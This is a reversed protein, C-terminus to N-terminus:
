RSLRDPFCGQGQIEPSAGIKGEPTTAADKKIQTWAAIRMRIQAASFL